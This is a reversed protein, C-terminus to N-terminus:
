ILLFIRFFLLVHEIRELYLWLFKPLWNLYIKQCFCANATTFQLLYIGTKLDTLSITKFNPDFSKVSKGSLEFLEISQLLETQGTEITIFDSTPNPYVKISSTSPLEIAELTSNLSLGWLDRLYDWSMFIKSPDTNGAKKLVQIEYKSLMKIGLTPLLDRINVMFFRRKLAKLNESRGKLDDPIVEDITFNSSVLITLRCIQPTKYKQDIPYGAEDCISKFFQVGLKEITTHDVDQLLVHSHVKEDYRDFFKTDLNKNFYDPYVVQLLASKGTGPNGHVWIHPDGKSSFFDRRQSILAKLKEGYTLYNRPFKRFAEDEKGNEIMGRMELIIDDLKRKKEEDSRKQVQASINTKDQPVYGEEFLVLKNEDVKTQVKKHHSVWGAYPLEKNRPVLYYGHGQIIDLNKLVSAKSVRNIYVLAVHVHRIMYDTQFPKTGIEVGSVLVYRFKGNKWEKAVAALLREVDADTPVNFRADWERDLTHFPVQTM